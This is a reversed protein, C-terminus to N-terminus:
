SVLLFGAVDDVHRLTFGNSVLFQQLKVDVDEHRSSEFINDGFLVSRFYLRLQHGLAGITRSRGLSILNQELSIHRQNRIYERIGSADACTIELPDLIELVEIPAGLFNVLSQLRYHLLGESLDVLCALLVIDVHPGPGVDVSNALYGGRHLYASPDLAWRSHNNSYLLSERNTGPRKPWSM